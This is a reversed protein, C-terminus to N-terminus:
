PIGGMGLITLQSKIRLRQLAFVQLQEMVKEASIVPAYTALPFHIRPYPVLNTQFCDLSKFFM